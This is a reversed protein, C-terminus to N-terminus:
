KNKNQHYKQNPTLMYNSYHPRKQNYIEIANKVLLKM